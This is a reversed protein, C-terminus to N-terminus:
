QINMRRCWFTNVASIGLVVVASILIMRGVAGSSWVPEGRLTGYGLFLGALAITWVVWAGIKVPLDRASSESFTGLGLAIAWGPAGSRRM